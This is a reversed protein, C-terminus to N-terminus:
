GMAKLLDHKTVIGYEKNGKDVLVAHYEDLLHRLTEVKTDPDVIPFKRGMIDRIKTEGDSEFQRVLLRDTISGKRNLSNGREDRGCRRQPSAIEDVVKDTRGPPGEVPM